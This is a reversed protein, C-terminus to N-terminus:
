TKARAVYKLDCRYWYAARGYYTHYRSKPGGAVWSIHYQLQAEDNWPDKKIETVLGVPNNGTRNRVRWDRVAELNSGRSSFTVLDGVKM